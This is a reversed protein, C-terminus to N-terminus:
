GDDSLEARLKAIGSGLVTRLQDNDLGTERRLAKMSRPGGTELGFRALVVRREMPELGDFLHPSRAHLSLVDWDPGGLLDPVDQESDTYPWGEDSRWAEGAM